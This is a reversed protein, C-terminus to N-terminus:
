IAMARQDLSPENVIEVKRDGSLVAFMRLNYEDSADEIEIETGVAAALVRLGNGIVQRQIQTVRRAMDIAFEGTHVQNAISLAVEVVQAESVAVGFKQSVQSRVKELLEVDRINVKKLPM